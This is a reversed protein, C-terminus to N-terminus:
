QRSRGRFQRSRSRRRLWVIVGTTFFALPLLGVVCVITRGATGLAIGTHLPILWRLLADGATETVPDRAGAVSGTSDIFIETAGVARASRDYPTLSVQYGTHEGRMWVISQLAREPYLQTAMAVAADLNVASPGALSSDIHTAVGAMSPRPTVPLVADVARTVLPGMGYYVGTVAMLGLFLSAYLGSVRHLDGIFARSGPRTAVLFAAARWRGRPWWMWLGTLASFLLFLGLIAVLSYGVPGIFLGSHLAFALGSLNERLSQKASLVQRAALVEGSVPDIYAQGYDLSLMQPGFQSMVLVPGAEGFPRLIMSMSNSEGVARDAADMVREWSIAGTQPLRTDFGLLHSDLEPYFVLWSGTLGLLSFVVGFVLAVYLHLKRIVATAIGLVSM